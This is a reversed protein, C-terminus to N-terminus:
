AMVQYLRPVYALVDLDEIQEKSDDVKGPFGDSQKVHFYCMGITTSDKSFPTWPEAVLKEYANRYSRHSDSVTLLDTFSKYAAKFHKACYEEIARAIVAFSQEKESKTIAFVAPHFECDTTGVIILPYGKNNLKHTGDMQIVRLGKKFTKVMNKMLSPTSFAIVLDKEDDPFQFALVFPKHEHEKSSFFGGGLLLRRPFKEELKKPFYQEFADLWGRETVVEGKIGLMEKRHNVCYTKIKKRTAEDYVNLKRCIETGKHGDKYHREVEMKMGDDLGAKPPEMRDHNHDAKMTVQTKSTTRLIQVYCPCGCKRSDQCRIIELTAGSSKRQEPRKNEFGGLRRRQLDKKIEETEARRRYTTM